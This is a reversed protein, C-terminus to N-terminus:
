SYKKAIFPLLQKEAKRLHAQFTSLSIKMLKALEELTIKRPYEYYGNEVALHLAQKQKDTLEPLINLIGINSIKQKKFYFLKAKYKKVSINIIKELIKRDVCAIEQEEELNPYIIAPKIHIVSPNYYLHVFNKLEQSSTESSIILLFDGKRELYTFVRRKKSHKKLKKCEKFFNNKQDQTGQVFGAAIFYYRQGKKYYNIPYYYFTVRTNKVIKPFPNKEDIAKFKAVWM